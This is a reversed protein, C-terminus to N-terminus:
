ADWPAELDLGTVPDGADPWSWVGAFRIAPIAIAAAFGMVGGVVEAEQSSAATVFLVAQFMAGQRRIRVHEIRVSLDGRTRRLGEVIVDSSPACALDPIAFRLEVAYM